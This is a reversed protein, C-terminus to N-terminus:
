FLFLFSKKFDMEFERIFERPKKRGWKNNFRHVREYLRTTGKFGMGLKLGFHAFNIGTKLGLRRLFGVKQPPVYM